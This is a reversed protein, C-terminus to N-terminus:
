ESLTEIESECKIKYYFGNDLLIALDIWKWIMESLFVDSEFKIEVRTQNYIPMQCSFMSSLVNTHSINSSLSSYITTLYHKHDKDTIYCCVNNIYSIHNLCTKYM